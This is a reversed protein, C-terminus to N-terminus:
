YVDFMKGDQTASSGAKAGSSVHKDRQEWLSMILTKAQEFREESFTFSIKEQSAPKGKKKSEKTVVMFM